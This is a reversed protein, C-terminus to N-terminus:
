VDILDAPWLEKAKKKTITGTGNRLQQASVEYISHRGEYWM